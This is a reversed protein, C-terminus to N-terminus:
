RSLLLYAADQKSTTADFNTMSRSFSRCTEEEEEGNKEEEKEKRRGEEERGIEVAEGQNFWDSIKM